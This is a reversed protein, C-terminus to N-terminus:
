KALVFGNKLLNTTLRRPSIRKREGTLVYFVAQSCYWTNRYLLSQILGFPMFFGSLGFFNYRLGGISKARKLMLQEDKNAIKKEYVDWRKPNRMVISVDEFRTGIFKKGTGRSRTTSSFCIGDSFLIESHSYPPTNWNFLKTWMSIADDLIHGDQRDARYQLVKITIM